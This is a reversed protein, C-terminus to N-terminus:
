SFGNLSLGTTGHRCVSMCVRSSALLRKEYNQADTKSTDCLVDCRESLSRKQNRTLMKFILLYCCVAGKRRLSFGGCAEIRRGETLVDVV